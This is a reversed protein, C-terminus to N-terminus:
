GFSNVAAIVRDAEDPSLHPGMPLSLVEDALREAIPLRLGSQASDRYAGQRHPPIPYHILTEIGTRSLHARLADRRRSRVVFLHWVPEAWAEASPLDVHPNRIGELYRTAISRRRRNWESLHPLRVNLASAQMEDLRSNWGFTDHVYKEHSGYNRYRRVLESVRSDNTTVAGGDGLAGLNKGPYFSWAAAHGLSGVPRGRYVAGHAQAADEVVALRHAEAVEMIPAMDAPSGYLHVPMIARTRSSIASQIRSPDINATAPLPEVPVPVAGLRTVAFWSAIFTNSPVIVEDGPGVGVARLAMELADLGSGVGVAHACGVSKAFADEFADVESGLIYRARRAVGLLRAEMEAALEAHARRLDLFAVRAVESTTIPRADPPQSSM